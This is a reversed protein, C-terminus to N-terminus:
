AAEWARPDVAEQYSPAEIFVEARQALDASFQYGEKTIAGDKPWIDNEIAFEWLRRLQDRSPPEEVLENVASQFEAFDSRFADTCANLSKVIATATALNQDLWKQLAAYVAFPYVPTDVSRALIKADAVEEEVQWFQNVHFIAADVQGAAFAAQRQGSSELITLNPIDSLSADKGRKAILLAQLEANATGGASDVAVRVDEDFIDEFSKAPGRGALVDDDRNRAGCFSKIPLGQAVASMAGFVSGSMIDSDGSLVSQTAVTHSQLEQFHEKRNLRLGFEEGYLLPGAAQQIFIPIIGTSSAIRVPKVEGSADGGGGGGGQEEDDGGCASLLAGAGSMAGIAGLWKASGGMFQRRTGPVWLQPDRRSVDGM